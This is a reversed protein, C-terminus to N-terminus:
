SSKSLFFLCLTSTEGDAYCLSPFHPTLALAGAAAEQAEPSLHCRWPSGHASVPCPVPQFHPRLATLHSCFAPKHRHPPAPGTVPEKGPWAGRHRIPWEHANLEM